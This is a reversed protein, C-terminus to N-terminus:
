DAQVQVSDPKPRHPYLTIRLSVGLKAMRQLADHSIGQNFARPEDGCDFGINFERKTCRLWLQRADESLREIADLLRLINLEPESDNPGEGMLLFVGNVRPSIHVYLGQASLEDALREPRIDCELDLDTNLYQITPKDSM